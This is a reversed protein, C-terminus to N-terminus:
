SGALQYRRLKTLNNAACVLKWEADVADLGRRSFTRTNRRDKIQGFVPEIIAKRRAYGARGPKTRLKRAMRAKPTLDKPIRGRPPAPAPEDHSRRGTAIFFETGHATTHAAADALPVARAQRGIVVALEGEYAVRGGYSAPVAIPQGPSALSGTSKMFYLPETPTAWGNKEAAARFNNWLGVIKGPVCPPLLAVEALAVVTGTAQPTGFMVGECLTVRDGELTGFHAAGRHMCRLWKM